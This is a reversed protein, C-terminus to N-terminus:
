QARRPSSGAVAASTANTQSKSRKQKKPSEATANAGMEGSNRGLQSVRDLVLGSLVLASTDVVPLNLDPPMSASPGLGKAKRKRLVIQTDKQAQFLQCSVNVEQNDGVIGAPPAKM